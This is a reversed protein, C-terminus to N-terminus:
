SRHRRLDLLQRVGNEDVRQLHFDSRFGLRGLRYLLRQIEYLLLILPRQQQMNQVVAGNRRRKNKRPGLMAGVFNGLTQYPRADPRLGDVTVFRLIGPLPGQLIKLAPMRPNQHCGIDGGPTDVNVFQRMDDIELQRIYGFGIYMADAPGAPGAGAANRQGKAVLFFFLEELINLFQNGTRYRHHFVMGMDHLRVEGVPCRYNNGSRGTAPISRTISAPLRNAGAITAPLLRSGSVPAPTAGPLRFALPRLDFPRLDFLLLVALSRFDISLLDFSRLDSPVFADFPMFFHLPVFVDLPVFVYLSM